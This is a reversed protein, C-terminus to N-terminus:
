VLSKDSSNVTVSLMCHMFAYLMQEVHVDSWFIMLDLWSIKMSFQYKTRTVCFASCAGISWLVFFTSNTTFKM